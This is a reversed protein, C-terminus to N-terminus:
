SPNPLRCAKPCGTLFVRKTQAKNSVRSVTQATHFAMQHPNVSSSTSYTSNYLSPPQTTLRSEIHSTSHPWKRSESLPFPLSSKTTTYRERIRHLEAPLQAQRSTRIAGTAETVADDVEETLKQLYIIYPLHRDTPFSGRALLKHCCELIYPSYRFHHSKQLLVASSHQTLYLNEFVINLM